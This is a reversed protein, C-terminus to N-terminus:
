ASKNSICHLTRLGFLNARSGLKIVRNYFRWGIFYSCLVRLPARCHIILKSSKLPLTSPNQNWRRWSLIQNTTLPHKPEFVVTIPSNVLIFDPQNGFSKMLLIPNIKLFGEASNNFRRSHPNNQRQSNLEVPRKSLKIYTICKKMIVDSLLNVLNAGQNHPNM